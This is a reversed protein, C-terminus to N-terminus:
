ADTMLEVILLNEITGSDLPWSADGAPLGLLM